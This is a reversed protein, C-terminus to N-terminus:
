HYTILTGAMLFFMQDIKLYFTVVALTTTKTKLTIIKNL